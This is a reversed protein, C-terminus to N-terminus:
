TLTKNWFFYRPVPQSQTLTLQRGKASSDKDNPSMKFERGDPSDNKQIRDSEEENALFQLGQKSASHPAGFTNIKLRTPYM